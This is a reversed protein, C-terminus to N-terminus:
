TFDIVEVTEGRNNKLAMRLKDPASEVIANRAILLCDPPGLEEDVLATTCMLGPDGEIPLAFSMVAAIRNKKCIEIVRTMLPAIETDYIDEKNM